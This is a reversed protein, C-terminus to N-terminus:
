EPEMVLDFDFMRDCHAPGDPCLDRYRIQQTRYGPKAVFVDCGIPFQNGLNSVQATGDRKSRVAMGAQAAAGDACAVAVTANEITRDSPDRLTVHAGWMPDCGACVVLVFTAKM